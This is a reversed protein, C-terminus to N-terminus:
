ESTLGTIDNKMPNMINKLTTNINMDKLSFVFLCYFSCFLLLFLIILIIFLEKFDKLVTFFVSLNLDNNEVVCDYPTNEM